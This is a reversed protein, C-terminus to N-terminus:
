LVFDPPFAGGIGEINYMEVIQEAGSRLQGRLIDFDRILINASAEDRPSFAALRNAGEYIGWYASRRFPVLHHNLNYANLVSQWDLPGVTGRGLLVGGIDFSIVSGGLFCHGAASFRPAVNQLLDTSYILSVMRRSIFIVKANNDIGVLSGHTMTGDLPLWFNWLIDLVSDVRM